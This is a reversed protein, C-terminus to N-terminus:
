PNPTKVEKRPPFRRFHNAQAAARAPYGYGYVDPRIQLVGNLDVWATWYVIHVPLPSKLAVHKEVEAHMAEEIKEATWEPQDKLLYSALEAAREVRVCGHSFNRTLRDFLNDAPTDHLYVNFENPFLFKVLGLSNRPGPKQRLQYQFDGAAENWNIKSPDIVQTTTKGVKVVEINQRLLYDRDKMIKPLMEKTAISEPINWYPSFVVSEMLDSFLPTRNDNTGVVVNMKLPVQNGERVELEYAPINVLIYRTGLDNPLWRLRELNAEIQSIRYEVPVNMIAIVQPDLIGDPKLGHRTEFRLVAESLENDFPTNVPAATKVDGTITLNNRLVAVNPNDEGLKLTLDVPLATWGGKTGIERYQRLMRKLAVYEPHPPALKGPLSELTNTEIADNVIQALNDNRPVYRWNPDITRPDSRGSSLYSGCRVLSYTFYMDFEILEELDRSTKIAERKAHLDAMGLDEASFGEAETSEFTRFLNDVRRTTQGRAIWVPRFGRLEYVKQTASWMKGGDETQPVFAPPSGRQVETKLANIEETSPEGSRCAALPLLLILGLLVNRSSKYM